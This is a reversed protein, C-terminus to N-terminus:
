RLRRQIKREEKRSIKAQKKDEIAQLRDIEVQEKRKQENIIALRHEGRPKMIGDNFQHEANIMIITDQELFGLTREFIWPMVNEEMVQMIPDTLMGEDKLQRLANEKLGVLCKKAFLRAM